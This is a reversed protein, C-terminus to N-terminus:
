DSNAKDDLLHKIVSGIQRAGNYLINKVIFSQEKKALYKLIQQKLKYANLLVLNNTTQSDIIIDLIHLALQHKNEKELEIYTPKTKM